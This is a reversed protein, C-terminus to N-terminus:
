SLIPALTWSPSFVLLYAPSASLFNALCPTIASYVKMTHTLSLTLDLHLVLSASNDISEMNIGEQWIKRKTVWFHQVASEKYYRCFLSHACSLSVLGSAPRVRTNKGGFEYEEKGTFQSLAKKTIDGFKYNEAAEEGLFSSVWARRRSEIERSIDGIEYDKGIFEEVRGKVRTSVEQTLDGPTYEEKGCYEAVASKIRSDLEKSLDGAEYPKGTLQETMQKSAEDMALVFDGLEYEEKGRFNAVEAKVKSDLEKTFDGVAYSDKGLFDRSKKKLDELVAIRVLESLEMGLGEWEDDAVLNGVAKEKEPGTVAEEARLATTSPTVVTRHGQHRHCSPGVVQFSQTGIVLLLAFGLIIKM